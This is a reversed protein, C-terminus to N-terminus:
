FIINIIKKYIEESLKEAGIPNLHVLDYTDNEKLNITNFIDICNINNQECFRMIIEARLKEHEYYNEGSLSFFQEGIKKWRLTRQTIFIPTSDMDTILHNLKELNSYIKNRLFKKNQDLPLSENNVKEYKPNRKILGVKRYEDKNVILDFYRYLNYTMGNNIKLFIYIKKFFSLEQYELDYKTKNNRENIGLYVVIYKPKFNNLKAFWNNFNWIHGVSSQGDIGANIIDIETSLNKNIKDELKETWTDELNLYREDTTSGGLVLIDINELNKKRGRFGYEDKYYKIDNYPEYLKNKFTYEQNCLIYSCNLKKKFLLTGSFIELLIYIFLFIIFNISAIKLYHLIKM